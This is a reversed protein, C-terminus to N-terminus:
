FSLRGHCSLSERRSKPEISSRMSSSFMERNWAAPIGALDGKRELAPGSTIHLQVGMVEAIILALTTKGLGPPGSLLVHDPAEGRAIAAEVFIRM